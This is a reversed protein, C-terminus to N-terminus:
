FSVCVRYIDSSLQKIFTKIFTYLVDIVHMILLVCATINQEQICINIETCTLLNGLLCYLKYKLTYLSLSSTSKGM